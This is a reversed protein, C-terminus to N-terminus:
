SEDEHHIIASRIVGCVASPSLSDILVTCGAGLLSSIALVIFSFTTRRLRFGRDVSVSVVAVSPVDATAHRQILLLM